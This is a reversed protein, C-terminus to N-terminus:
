RSFKILLIDWWSICNCFKFDMVRWYYIYIFSFISSNRVEYRFSSGIEETCATTLPLLTWSYSLLLLMPLIWSITPCLFCSYCCPVVTFTQPLNIVAAYYYCYRKPQAQKEGIKYKRYFLCLLTNLLLNIINQIVLSILFNFKFSIKPFYNKCTKKVLNELYKKNIKKKYMNKRYIFKSYM